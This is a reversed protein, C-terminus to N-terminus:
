SQPVRQFCIRGREGLQGGPVLGAELIGPLDGWYTAHWILDFDDQFRAYIPVYLRLDMVGEVSHGQTARICVYYGGGSPRDRVSQYPNRRPDLRTRPHSRLPDVNLTGTRDDLAALASRDDPDFKCIAIEYREGQTSRILAVLRNVSIGEYDYRTHLIYCVTHIDM